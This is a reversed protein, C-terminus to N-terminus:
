DREDGGATYYCVLLVISFRLQTSRKFLQCAIFILAKILTPLAPRLASQDQVTISARIKCIEGSEVKVTWNFLIAKGTRVHKIGPSYTGVFARGLYARIENDIWYGSKM